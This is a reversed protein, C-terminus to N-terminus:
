DAKPGPARGFGEAPPATADIPCSLIAGSEPGPRDLGHRATTVFLRGDAICVSTPRPAPTPVTRELTGDPLYCHVAWGDWLAVWIRGSDDVTMGDPSGLSPPIELFLEHGILDGSALDVQCRYIRGAASDTVYMLSGDQNFAPGNVITMGDLVRTVAGGSEVRYLSGAGVTADDAMSGAWFRGAPDCIGDNMRSPQAGADEPRDVWRLVGARDLLGIGTGAAVIWEDPNEACPAAAGLPVDLQAVLRPPAPDTSSAEFFRGSLIDVFVLRDGLWRIGEALEFGDGTWITLGDRTAADTM